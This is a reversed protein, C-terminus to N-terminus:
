CELLIDKDELQCDLDKLSISFYIISIGLKTLIIWSLHGAELLLLWVKVWHSWWMIEYHTPYTQVLSQNELKTFSSLLRMLLTITLMMGLNYTLILLVYFWQPNYSRPNIVTENLPANLLSTSLNVWNQGGEGRTHVITFM